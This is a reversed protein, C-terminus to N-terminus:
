GVLGFSSTKHLFFGLSAFDSLMFRVYSKPLESNAFDRLSFLFCIDVNTKLKIFLINMKMNMKNFPFFMGIM